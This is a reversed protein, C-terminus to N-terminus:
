RGGRTLDIRWENCRMKHGPPYEFECEGVLEFSLKRCIANSPGNAISPFAELYRHTREEKALAIVRTLAESAIGRGQYESAVAWGTEYVTAERWEREWYGISGVPGAGDLVIKFMRSAPTTAVVYRRIRDELKEDTEPGGIHETM